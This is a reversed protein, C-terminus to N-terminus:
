LYSQENIVLAIALIYTEQYLWFRNWITEMFTSVNLFSCLHFMPKNQKLSEKYLLFQPYVDQFILWNGRELFAFFTDREKKSLLRTLFEGKLDTMNWGGNRSVMHGLFAWHIEPYKLYFDLYARTRTVNNLNQAETETRIQQLLTEEAKTLKSPVAAQKSKKKLEERILELPTKERNRTFFM